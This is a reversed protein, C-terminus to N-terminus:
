CRRDILVKVIDTYGRSATFMLATLGEEEDNGSLCLNWAIFGEPITKNDKNYFKELLKLQNALLQNCKIANTKSRIINQIEKDFIMGINMLDSLLKDNDEDLAKVLLNKGQKRLVKQAALHM